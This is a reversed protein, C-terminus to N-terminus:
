KNSDNYKKLDPDKEEVTQIFFRFISVNVGLADLNEVISTFQTWIYFLTIFWMFTLGINGLMVAFVTMFCLLVIGSLHKILGRSGTDSDPVGLKLSKTYGTAIDIVTLVMIVVLALIFKGDQSAMVSQLFEIWPIFM